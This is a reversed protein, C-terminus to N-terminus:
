LMHGMQEKKTKLYNKNHKNPEIIIPVRSVIEIGALSEIKKPNNTLLKIKDIKFHNLIFEVVEYSREDTAFGLQHNAAVTDFGMDQLAYANTKNLLGINRGEQRLYIVMGGEQSIAKLAYELQDRCDCKLSGIADGTLCESHIRVLPIESLPEKFIVLHEKIGEAFTQIKFDGFRSPLKAINSINVRM